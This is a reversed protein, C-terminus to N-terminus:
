SCRAAEGIQAARRKLRDAVGEGVRRFEALANCADSGSDLKVLVDALDVLADARKPHNPHEEILSFLRQAAQGNLGQQLHIRGLWFKANGIRSDGANKEIFQEMAIRGSDLDNKQIFAFAYKYQSAADGEPLEVTSAEPEQAVPTAPQTAADSPADVVPQAVQSNNATAALLDQQQLSLDKRLVELAQELQRQKFEFEELRGTLQRMQREIGGIKASLDAVLRRDTLSSNESAAGSNAAPNVGLRTQLTRVKRELVEIRASNVANSSQGFAAPAATITTLMMLTAVSSSLFSARVRM